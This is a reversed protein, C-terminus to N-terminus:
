DFDYSRTLMEDRTFPRTEPFVTKSLGTERIAELRVGRYARELAEDLRSRLGPSDQLVQLAHERHLDISLAWSRSRLNPQHEWKLMHLLILRYFSVLKSLESRGLSEIEEAINERDVDEFRGARILAAQELTWTYFDRDYAARDPDRAEGGSRPKSRALTM